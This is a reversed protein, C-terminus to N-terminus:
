ELVKGYADLQIKINENAMVRTNNDVFYQLPRYLCTTAMKSESHFLSHIPKVM